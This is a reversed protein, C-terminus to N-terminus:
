WAWLQGLVPFFTSKMKRNLAIHSTFGFHHSKLPREAKRIKYATGLHLHWASTSVTLSICTLVMFAASSPNEGGGAEQRKSKELLM